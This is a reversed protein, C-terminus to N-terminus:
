RAFRLLKQRDDTCALEGRLANILARRQRERVWRFRLTDCALQRHVLCNIDSKKGRFVFETDLVRGNKKIEEVLTARDGPNAWIGLETATARAIDERGYGSMQIWADNVDIFRGDSLTTISIPNPSNRFTKSFKEESRKIVEAARNRETVDIQLGLMRRARANGDFEIGKGIEKIWRYSGDAHRCRFEIDLDSQRADRVSGLTNLLFERDDPHAHEGLVMGTLGETDPHYGLMQFYIPTAYWTDSELDWDWVGIQTATLTLRLREENEKLRIALRQRERERDFNDLAFTINRSLDSLLATMESDFAAKNENYFTLVAFPKGARTVPFGASSKWGYLAGREHWPATIDNEEFDNVIVQRSECFAIATPGRAEGSEGGVPILIGTLYEIGKGFSVVPEILGSQGNLQGVWAMKMGGLEVAIRCVMPFLTEEDEMRVIAQNIESLARYIRTLREKREEGKRKESVDRALVAIMKAGGAYVANIHIDVPFLTGDEHRHLGERLIPEKPKITKWVSKATALDIAPEIDTVAMRLLAERSYGLSRCAQRNVDILRGDIDHMFFADPGEELVERFVFEDNM